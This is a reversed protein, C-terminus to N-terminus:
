RRGWATTGPRRCSAPRDDRWGAAARRRTRRPADRRGAAPGTTRDRSGYRGPWHGAPAAPSASRRWGCGCGSPRGPRGRGRHWRARGRSRGHPCGWPPAARRSRSTRPSRASRPRPARGLLQHEVRLQRGVGVEVSQVPAPDPEHGQPAARAAHQPRDPAARGRGPPPDGQVAQRPGVARGLHQVLPDPQLTVLPLQALDRDDLQPVLLRRDQQRVVEPAVARRQHGAVRLPHQDLVPDGLRDLEEM